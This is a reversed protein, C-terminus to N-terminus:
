DEPEGGSVRWQEATVINCCQEEDDYVVVAKGTHLQRRLREVKSATDLEHAGYDTGDRTVFEEILGALAEDSLDAHPIRLIAM